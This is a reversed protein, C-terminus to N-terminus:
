VGHCVCCVCFVVDLVCECVSHFVRRSFRFSTAGSVVTSAIAVFLCCCCHCNFPVWGYWVMASGFSRGSVWETTCKTCRAYVIFKIRVLLRCDAALSFWFLVLFYGFLSIVVYEYRYYNQSIAMIVGRRRTCSPSLALSSEAHMIYNRRRCKTHLIACIINHKVKLRSKSCKTQTQSARRGSTSTTQTVKANEGTESLDFDRRQVGIEKRKANANVFPLYPDSKNWKALMFISFLSILEFFLLNRTPTQATSSNLKNEYIWLYTAASSM